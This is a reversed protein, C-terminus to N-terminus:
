PTLSPAVEVPVLDQWSEGSRVRRRVERSSVSAIAPDMPVRRCHRTWRRTSSDALLAAVASRDGARQAYVVEALSFLEDLATDRDEYWREDFLQLLKDSGCYIRLRADPFRDRAARAQDVLLGHSCLAPATGPHTGCWARVSALRADDNLLPPETRSPGEKTLTATSYVLVVLDNTYTAAEALAAHAVTMPDFSAPLLAVRLPDGPDGEVTLNPPSLLRSTSARQHSM